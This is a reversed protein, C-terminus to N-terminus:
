NWRGYADLADQAAQKIVSVLESNPYLRIKNGNEDTMDYLHSYQNAAPSNGTLAGYWVLGGLYRGYLHSSHFGDRHLSVYEREDLATTGSSNTYFKNADRVTQFAEHKRANQFADGTPIYRLPEGNLSIPKGDDTTIKALRECATSVTYVIKDYMNNQADLDSAKGNVGYNSGLPSYGQEYAWTEQLVIEATPQYTRLLKAINEACHDYTGEPDEEAFGYTKLKGSDGSVQQFTIIDFYKGGNLEPDIYELLTKKWEGPADPNSPKMADGEVTQTGYFGKGQKHYMWHQWISSGGHGAKTINLTVGDANAISKLYATPDDTFSNGITLINLDKAPKTTKEKALPIMKEVSDWLFTKIQDTGEPIDLTLESSSEDFDVTKKETTKVSILKGEADYFAIMLVYTKGEINFYNEFEAVALTNDKLTTAGFTYSFAEKEEIASIVSDTVDETGQKVQLKLGDTSEAFKFKARYSGDSEPKVEQIHKVNDEADLLLINVHTGNEVKGTVNVISTSDLKEAVPAASVGVVSLLMALALIVSLVKKM